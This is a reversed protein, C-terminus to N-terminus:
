NYSRGDVAKENVAGNLHLKKYIKIHARTKQPLIRSLCTRSEDLVRVHKKLFDYTNQIFSTRTKGFREASFLLAYLFRCSAMM